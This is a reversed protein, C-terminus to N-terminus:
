VREGEEGTGKNKSDILVVTAKVAVESIMWNVRLRSEGSSHLHLQITQAYNKHFTPYDRPGSVDRTDLEM